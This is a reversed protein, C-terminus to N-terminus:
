LSLFWCSLVVCHAHLTYRLVLLTTARPPGMLRHRLLAIAAQSPQRAQRPQLAPRRLTRVLLRSMLRHPITLLNRVAPITRHLSPCQPMPLVKPMPPQTQRHPRRWPVNPLRSQPQQGMEQLHQARPIRQPAPVPRQSQLFSLTHTERTLHISLLSWEAPVIMRGPPCSGFHSAIM